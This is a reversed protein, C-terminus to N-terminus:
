QEGTQVAEVRQGEMTYFTSPDYVLPPEDSQMQANLVEALVIHHDGAPLVKTVRCDLYAVAAELIPSGNSSKRYPVDAFKKKNFGSTFGFSRTLDLSSVGMINVCLRKGSVITRYTHQNPAMLVAILPPDFSARTLWVCTCGAPQNRYASTVIHVGTRIHDFVELFQKESAM